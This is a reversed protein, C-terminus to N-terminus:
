RVVYQPKGQNNARNEGGKLEILKRQLNMEEKQMAEQDNVYDLVKVIVMSKIVDWYADLVESRHYDGSLPYQYQPIINGDATANAVTDEVTLITDDSVLAVDAITYPIGSKDNGTSGNVIFQEGINYYKVKDGTITFTKLAIDVGSIIHSIPIRGPTMFLFTLVSADGQVYLINGAMAWSDAKSFLKIYERYSYKSLEAGSSNILAIEWAFVHFLINSLNYSNSGDLTLDENVSNMRWEYKRCFELISENTFDKIQVALEPDEMHLYREILRRFDKYLM